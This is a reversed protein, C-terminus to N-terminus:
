DDSELEAVKAALVEEYADLAAQIVANDSFQARARTV